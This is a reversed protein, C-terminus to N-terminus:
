RVKNAEKEDDPIRDKALYNIIPDMWCPETASIVAIEIGAASVGIAANISPEEILKVKILQSVEKTMLSALTTLFNAHRNQARAVQAVKTTCFKNMIQKVVQLYAKM